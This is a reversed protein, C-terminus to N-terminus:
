YVKSVLGIFSVFLCFTKMCRIYPAYIPKGTLTSKERPGTKRGFDDERPSGNETRHRTAQQPSQIFEVVEDEEDNWERIVEALEDQQLLASEAMMLVFISLEQSFM